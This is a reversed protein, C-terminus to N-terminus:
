SSCTANYTYCGIIICRRFRYAIAMRKICQYKVPDYPFGRINMMRRIIMRIVIKIRNTMMRGNCVNDYTVIREDYTIMRENYTVIREDYTIMRENYTVIREDYTKM